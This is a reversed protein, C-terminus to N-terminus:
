VTKVARVDVKAVNCKHQLALQISANNHTAMSSALCHTTAGLSCKRGIKDM